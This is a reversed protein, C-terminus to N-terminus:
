RPESWNLYGPKGAIAIVTIEHRLGGSYGDSVIRRLLSGTGFVQELIKLQEPPLSVISALTQVSTIELDDATGPKGDSGSRFRVFAAAQDRDLGGFVELLDGSVDQLDLRGSSTVSFYEAWDPKVRRVAEMGRVDAMEAVSTFPRNEPTSFGTVDGAEAGNLSRQDDEDVWDKLSDVAVAAEEEKVGWFVFLRQLSLTKGRLLLENINLRADENSIRVELRSSDSPKQTFLADGRKVKPHLAYAVGTQALQRAEFRKAASEGLDLDFHVLRVVVILLTTLVFVAWLVLALAAGRRGNGVNRLGKM